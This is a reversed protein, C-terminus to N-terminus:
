VLGIGFGDGQYELIMVAAQRQLPVVPTEPASGKIKGISVEMSLGVM